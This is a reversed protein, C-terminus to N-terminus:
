RGGKSVQQGTAVHSGTGHRLAIDPAVSGTPGAPVRYDGRPTPFLLDAFDDPLQETVHVFEGESVAARITAVTLRAHQRAQQVSWGSGEREAVRRHFEEVHSLTEQRQSSRVLHEHCRTEGRRSGLEGAYVPM